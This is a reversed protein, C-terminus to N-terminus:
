AAVSVVVALLWLGGAVYVAYCAHRWYIEALVSNIIRGAYADPLQSDRGLLLWLETDRHNRHPARRSKVYLVAAALACLIAGSRFSLVPEHILAFM